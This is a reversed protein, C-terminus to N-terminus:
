FIVGLSFSLVNDRRNFRIEGEHSYDGAESSSAYTVSKSVNTLGLDYRFDFFIPSITVALGITLSMNIPHLDERIGQQEFNVFEIESTHPLIWRFKPGAFIALSYPPKKIINYGYLIPFDLSHISSNISAKEISGTGSTSGPAAGSGSAPGNESAGNDTDEPRVFEINGRNINYSVEPQLFHHGFNIRAFFAGLYGIKYNNQEEDIGVGNLSFNSTLFLSSTFGGKIGFNVKREKKEVKTEKISKTGPVLPLQAWARSPLCLLGMGTFLLTCLLTPLPLIKKM